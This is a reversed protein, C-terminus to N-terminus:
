ILPRYQAAYWANVGTLEFLLHGLAGAAFAALRDDPTLRKCALFLLVFAVGVVLMETTLQVLQM